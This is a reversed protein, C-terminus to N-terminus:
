DQNAFKVLERFLFEKTKDKEEKQIQYVLDKMKEKKEESVNLFEIQEEFEEIREDITMEEEEAQDIMQKLIGTRELEESSMSM